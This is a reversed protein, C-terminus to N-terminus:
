SCTNALATLRTRLREEIASIETYKADQERVLRAREDVNEEEARALARNILALELFAQEILNLQEVAALEEAKISALREQLLPVRDDQSLAPFAASLSAGSVVGLPILVRDDENEVVGTYITSALAALSGLSLLWRRVATLRRNRQDIESAIATKVRGCYRTTRDWQLSLGADSTYELFEASPPSLSQEPPPTSLTYPRVPACALSWFGTMVMLTLARFLEMM